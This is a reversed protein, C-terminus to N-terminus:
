SMTTCEVILYTGVVDSIAVDCGEQADIILSLILSILLLTPSSVEHKTIYLRQRCCDVFTRTKLDDM